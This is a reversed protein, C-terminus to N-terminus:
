IRSQSVQFDIFGVYLNNLISKVARNTLKSTDVDTVFMKPGSSNASKLDEYSYVGSKLDGMETIPHQSVPITTICENLSDAFISLVGDLHYSDTAFVVANYLVTTKKEGGFAFPENKISSSSLFICPITYDYPVVPNKCNQTIRHNEIFKNSFVLDEETENTFYVNFDKVSYQGSIEANGHIGSTLVRGNDFDFVVGDERGRILGDVSVGTPVIANPISSDTVWQKFPSGFALYKPDLRDDKYNYLRSSKNSFAQGNKLLYNDFWLMFSNTATHQYTDIM